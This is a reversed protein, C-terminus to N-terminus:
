PAPIPVLKARRIYFDPDPHRVGVMVERLRKEESYILRGNVDRVVIVRQEVRDGPRLCYYEVDSINLPLPIECIIRSTQAKPNCGVAALVPACLAAIFGRRTTNM